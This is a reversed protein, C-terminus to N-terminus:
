VRSNEVKSFLHQVSSQFQNKNCVPVNGANCVHEMCPKLYMAKGQLYPWKPKQHPQAYQAGLEYSSSCGNLAWKHTHGVVVTGELSYRVVENRPVSDWWLNFNRNKKTSWRLNMMHGHFRGVDHGVGGGELQGAGGEEVDDGQVVCCEGGCWPEGSKPWGGDIVIGGSVVVGNEWLGSSCTKPCGASRWRCQVLRCGVGVNGGWGFAGGYQEVHQQVKSGSQSWYGVAWPVEM